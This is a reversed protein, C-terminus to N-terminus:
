ILRKNMMWSESGVHIQKSLQISTLKFYATPGEPLHVITIADAALSDLILFLRHYDQCRSRSPKKMDENVVMMTGFGRGAAWGAIRGMEFGRSKKNRRVFESGPFIACLEECFEYSVRTARPSTTILVKPPKTPDAESFYSAFPDNAFDADAESLGNTIPLNDLSANSPGAESQDSTPASTSAAPNATLFTPDFERANDLTRPVNEAL